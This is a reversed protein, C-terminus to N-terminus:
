YPELYTEAALLKIEQYCSKLVIRREVCYKTNEIIREFILRRYICYHSQYFSM